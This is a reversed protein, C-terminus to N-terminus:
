QLKSAILFRSQSASSPCYVDWILFLGVPMMIIAVVLTCIATIIPLTPRRLRSTISSELADINSNAYTIALTAFTILVISFGIGFTSSFVAEPMCSGTTLQIEVETRM